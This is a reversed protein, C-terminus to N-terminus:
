FYNDSSSLAISIEKIGDEIKHEEVNSINLKLIREHYFGDLYNRNITDLLIHQQKL